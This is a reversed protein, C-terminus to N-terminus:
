ISFPLHECQFGGAGKHGGGGFLKSIAGCDIDNRTSYLSIKWKGIPMRIFAVMMHHVKPNYISDFVKSNVFGRNACICKMNNFKIEFAYNNCFKTNQITEYNLLLHGDNIIRECESINTFLKLWLKQNEPYTNKFQYMGYQFPLTSIDSHDWVDYRGLLYVAKPMQDFEGHIYKWTLECGAEGIKLLQGGTATFGKENAVDIATKHHDIWHLECMSNLKKMNEFPQLTFDVMFVKENKIISEWPFDYGHDIGIMKCDRHHQKIIAGSCHGDFDASHYFCKM